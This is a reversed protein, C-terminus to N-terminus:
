ILDSISNYCLLAVVNMVNPTPYEIEYIIKVCISYKASIREKKGFNM